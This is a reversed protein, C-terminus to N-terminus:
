SNKSLTRLAEKNFTQKFVIEPFGEFTGSARRSLEVQQESLGFVIVALKKILM